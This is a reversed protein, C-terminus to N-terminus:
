FLDGPIFKYHQLHKLSLVFSVLVKQQRKEDVQFTIKLLAREPLLTDLVRYPVVSARITEGPIFLAVNAYITFAVM